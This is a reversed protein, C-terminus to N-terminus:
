KDRSCPRYWGSPHEDVFKDCQAKGTFCTPGVDWPSSTCWKTPKAAQTLTPLAFVIVSAILMTLAVTFMIATKM